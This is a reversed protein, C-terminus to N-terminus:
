GVVEKYIEMQRVGVTQADNRKRGLTLANAGLRSALDRDDLVTRIMAACSVHDGPQYYLINEGHTGLEPMAGAYSVVCPMGVAMAEAVSLSYSECFSSHVYVSAKRMEDAMQEATQPGLFKVNRSIGMRRIEREIWATYGPRRIGTGGISGAIRLELLPDVVGANLLDAVARLTIHLGKFPASAGCSAFVVPKGKGVASWAESEMFPKRLMIGTPLLTADPNILSLHRRVWDSQYSIHKFGRIIEREANEQRGFLRKQYLYHRYPRLMEKIGICGIAEKLSLGGHYFPAIAHKIGQMELLSPCKVFGRSALLGYYNEVGWFHVLDPNYAEVLRVIRAVKDADPLGKSCKWLPLIYQRVGDIEEETIDDVLGSTVNCLEVGPQAKVYRGMSGIWTGTNADATNKFCYNSFWLTKM